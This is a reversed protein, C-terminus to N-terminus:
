VASGLPLEPRINLTDLNKLFTAQDALLHARLTEFGQAFVVLRELSCQNKEIQGVCLLWSVVSAKTNDAM